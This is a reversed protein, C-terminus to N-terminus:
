PGQRELLRGVLILVLDTALPQPEWRGIRLPDDDARVLRPETTWAATYGAARTLAVTREDAKGHPYSFWTLPRGVIAALRDRGEVLARRQEERDLGPLVPHHLTHFGFTMGAEALARIGDADLPADGAPAHHEILSLRRPDGESRLGLQAEIVGDLELLASVAEPGRRAVLAELREWWSAGLGHLSRGSLFFTAPVRLERLIPLVHRAHTGYDDDFTLAIRLPDDGRKPGDLLDALPVIEGLEGFAELQERFLHLPVTPVIEYRATRRPAIRHYVLVLRAGRARRIVRLARRLQPWRRARRVAGLLPRGARRLPSASSTETRGSM